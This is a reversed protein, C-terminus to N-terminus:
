YNNMYRAVNLSVILKWADIDTDFEKLSRSIAHSVGMGPTEATDFLKPHEGEGIRFDMRSLIDIELQEMAVSSYRSIEKHIKANEYPSFTHKKLRNVDFGIPDGEKWNDSEIDIKLALPVYFSNGLRYTPVYVEPGCVFEQVLLEPCKIEECINRCRAELSELDNVEMVSKQSVGLGFAECNNKLIVIKKCPPHQGFKWGNNLKYLWTKPTPVDAAELLQTAIYKNWNM